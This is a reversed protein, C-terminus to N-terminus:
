SLPAGPDGSRCRVHSARDCARPAGEYWVGRFPVEGLYARNRLVDLVATRSWDRGYRTRIGRANLDNAIAASGARDQTYREFIERVIPAAAPDPAPGVVGDIKRYGIPYTGVTWGGLKAKREMGAGIREVISAREYEAFVGLIQMQMRGAPTATEFFESASRFAVGAKDLEETLVSLQGINRGLRDLRLVLLLDFAGEAAAARVAALGPRALSKGSARDEYRGVIRWGDQSAVYAELRDRQAGLSYPQNIEDTSIRSYTVVRVDSVSM